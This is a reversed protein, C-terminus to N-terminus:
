GALRCPVWKGDRVFFRVGCCTYHISPHLTIPDRSALDWNQEAVTPSPGPYEAPIFDQVVTGARHSFGHATDSM